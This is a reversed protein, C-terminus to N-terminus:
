LSFDFTTQVTHGPDKHCIVSYAVYAGPNKGDPRFWIEHISQNYPDLPGGCNPCKDPYGVKQGEVTTVVGGSIDALDEDRLKQVDKIIKINDM